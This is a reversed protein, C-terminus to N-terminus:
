RRKLLEDVRLFTYGKEELERILEPLQHYFKDTREPHTGIHVLLIFGKMGKERELKRISELIVASSRYNPMSPTTYDAHSLTGSTFNVLQLKEEQTWAAIVENYWEYPPLFYRTKGKRIGARRMERYNNRLDTLFEERSVLLSDRKEWSCYLLHRDSHAGLYHGDKKLGSVLVPYTRYFDGTFFFSAPTGSAKLAERVWEGGDAYEHGTFVLAISRVATDGRVVAGRVTPYQGWLSWPVLSMVLLLGRKLNRFGVM